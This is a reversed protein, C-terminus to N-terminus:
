NIFLHGNWINCDFACCTCYDHVAQRFIELMSLVLTGYLLLTMLGITFLTKSMVRQFTRNKQLGEHLNGGGSQRKARSIAINIGFFLMGMLFQIMPLLLFKSISKAGFRDVQGSINYHLPIQQPLSPYKIYVAVITGAIVALYTLFWFPNIPKRENNDSTLLATAKKEIQWGSNQKYARVRRYFLLYLLAIFVLYVLMTALHIWATLKTSVWLYAITSGVALVGGFDSMQCSVAPTFETFFPSGYESEPVSVGFAISKVSTIPHLGPQWYWWFGPCNWFGVTFLIENNM